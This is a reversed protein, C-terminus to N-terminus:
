FNGVVLDLDGSALLHGAHERLEEPEVRHVHAGVGGRQGGRRCLRPPRRRQPDGLRQPTAGTLTRARAAASAAGGACGLHAAGNATSTMCGISWHSGSGHKLWLVSTSRSLTPGPATWRMLM